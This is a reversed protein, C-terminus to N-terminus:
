FLYVKANVAASSQLYIYKADDRPETAAPTVRWIRCDADRDVIFWGVWSRGLKHQIRTATVGIAVTEIDSSVISQAVNQIAEAVAENFRTQGAEGSRHAFPPTLTHSGFKSAM